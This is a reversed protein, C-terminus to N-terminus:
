LQFEFGFDIQNRNFDQDSVNSNRDDFRYRVDIHVFRNLIYRFGASVRFGEDNRRNGEYDGNFYEFDGALELAEMLDHELGFGATTYLIGGAGGTNSDVVKRDTSVSVTTLHTAFWTLSAGFSVDDVDKFLSSDYNQDIYGVYLEGVILNTLESSIGGVIEYGDSNQKPSGATVTSRHDYDRDNYSGRVFASYGPSFIYGLQAVGEAIWRDRYEQSHTRYDLGTYSGGISATLQDFRHNFVGSADFQGYNSPNPAYLLVDVGSRDETLRQYDISTEFNTTDLLDFRGTSGFGWNLYNQKSEYPYLRSELFSGFSLSHRSWQSEVLVSPAVTTRGARLVDSDTSLINSDYGGLIGLKPYARFAGLPLGKADASARTRATVNEPILREQADAVSAVLLLSALRVANSCSLFKM